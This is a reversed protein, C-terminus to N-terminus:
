LKSMLWFIFFEGRNMQFDPHRLIQRIPGVPKANGVEGLVHSSITEYASEDGERYGLIKAEIRFNKQSGFFAVLGDVSHVHKEVLDVMKICPRLARKIKGKGEGRKRKKCVRQNRRFVRAVNSTENSERGGRHSVESNVRQPFFREVQVMPVELLHEIASEYVFVNLDIIYLLLRKTHALVGPPFFEYDFRSNIEEIIKNAKKVSLAWGKWRHHVEIFSETLAGEEILSDFYIQRYKSRGKFSDGPNDNGVINLVIDEEWLEEVLANAVDLGFGQWHQGRRWGLSGRLFEAKEGSPHIVTIRDQSRLKTRRYFLLSLDFRKEHFHHEIVVPSSQFMDLSGTLFINKLNRLNDELFENESATIDLRHFLTKARGNNIKFSLGVIPIYNKCNLFIKLSNLNGYDRYVHITNKDARHIHLRSIVMQSDSLGGRVRLQSAPDYYGGSVGLGIGITDTIILSEGVRFQETFDKINELSQALDQKYFNVFIHRLPEKFSQKISRIPKLHTYNRTFFLNGNLNAFDNKPLGEVFGLVGANVGFGFTDALHIMNDPRDADNGAGQYTGTVVERSFIVRGNLTPQVWVGLPTEQTEDTQWSKLFNDRAQQLRREVWEDNVDILRLEENADSVLNSLLNSLAKSKFFAFVETGSLPSDMQDHAFRAGYGPWFDKVVMGDVVHESNLGFPEKHDLEPFDLNLVGVLHNRRSILKEQVVSTIEDPYHASQVIELFDERKLWAIRRMIWLVDEYNPHYAEAYSPYEEYPLILSNDKIRGLHWSFKNISEPIDTLAYAVVVSNLLRLNQNMDRSLHGLSLDLMGNNILPYVLVDQFELLMEQSRVKAEEKAKPHDRSIGPPLFLYQEREVLKGEASEVQVKKIGYLNSVWRAPDAALHEWMVKKLFDNRKWTENKGFRVKLRRLHQSPPVVYGIKRLLAKRLFVNHIKRSVRVVYIENDQQVTFEITGPFSISAGLFQVERQADLLFDDERFDLPNGVEDRWIETERPSLHSVDVGQRHLNVAEEPSLKVGQHVLGRSATDRFGLPVSVNVDKPTAWTPSTVLFVFFLFFFLLIVLKSFFFYCKM